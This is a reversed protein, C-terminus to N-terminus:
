ALYERRRALMGGVGHRDAQLAARATAVRDPVNGRGRCAPVAPWPYRVGGAEHISALLPQGAIDLSQFSNSMSRSVSVEWAPFVYMFWEIILFPM